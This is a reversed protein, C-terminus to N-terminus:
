NVLLDSIFPPRLQLNWQLIGFCKYSSFNDRKSLNDLRGFLSLKGVQTTESGSTPKRGLHLHHALNQLSIFLVNAQGPYSLSPPSPQRPYHWVM